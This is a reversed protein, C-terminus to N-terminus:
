AKDGKQDLMRAAERLSLPTVFLTKQNKYTVFGPAAGRPKRVYRIRTYDVPVNESNKAMSYYAAIRAALFMVNEPIEANKEPSRAIVHTGHFVRCHFWWDDPRAFRTTLQDNETSTRGIYLSWNESIELSRFPRKGKQQSKKGKEPTLARLQVYDDLEELDFMEKEVESIENETSKIQSLIKERGSKAKRYKKVYYELNQQPSKEPALPIKVVPMEPDYYDTLEIEDMGKELLHFSARLLEGTHRWTEERSADQLEQQQKSRKKEKRSLDKQLRKKLQQRLNEVRRTLIIDRFLAQLLENMSPYSGTNGAYGLADMQYPPECDKTVPQFDTDPPVYPQGPLIQRQPNDALSYKRIADTVILRNGEKRCLIMNPHGPILELILSQDIRQNYIDMKHLHLRVIRDGPDIGLGTIRSQRISQNILDLGSHEEFPLEPKRTCYLFSERQDLCIRLDRKKGKLVLLYQDEYRVLTETKANLLEPGIESVIQKLFRYEM